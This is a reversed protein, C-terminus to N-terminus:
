CDLLLNEDFDSYDRTHYVTSKITSINLYLSNMMTLM